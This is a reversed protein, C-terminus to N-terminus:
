RFLWRIMIREPATRFIVFLEGLSSLICHEKLFYISNISQCMIVHNFNINKCKM